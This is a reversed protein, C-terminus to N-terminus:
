YWSTERNKGDSPEGIEMKISLASTENADEVSRNDTKMTEDVASIGSEMEGWSPLSASFRYPENSTGYSCVLEGIQNEDPETNISDPAVM